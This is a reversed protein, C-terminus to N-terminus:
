NLLYLFLGSFLLPSATKILQKTSISITQKQTKLEFITIAEAAITTLIALGFALFTFQNQFGYQYFLLLFLILLINPIVFMFLNYKMFNKTAILFNLFIEHVIFLPLTVTVILFYSRLEINHFITEALFDSGFYFFVIPIISFCLAGKLGKLLLKKSQHYSFNHNGIIKILTNPIGLTFSIAVIQSIAFVLSYNGFTGVGFLRTIIISTFFSTGLGVIRFIFNIGSTSIIKKFNSNQQIM